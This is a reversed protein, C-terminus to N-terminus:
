TRKFTSFKCKMRVLTAHATPGLTFEDEISKEKWFRPNKFKNSNETTSIV